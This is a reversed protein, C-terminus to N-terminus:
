NTNKTETYEEIKNYKMNLIIAAITILLPLLILHYKMNVGLIGLYYSALGMIITGTVTAIALREKFEIEKAWFLMISYGPIIIIYLVSFLTKIITSINEKYFVIKLAILFIASLIALYISEEKIKEALKNNKM